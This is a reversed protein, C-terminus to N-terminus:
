YIVRRRSALESDWGQDQSGIVEVGKCLHVVAGPPVHAVLRQGVRLLRELYLSITLPPLSMVGLSM